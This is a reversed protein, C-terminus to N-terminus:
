ASKIDKLVDDRLHEYKCRGKKCHKLGESKYKEYGDPFVTVVAKHGKAMEKAIFFNAGSSVGVCCGSIKEIQFASEKAQESTVTKIEDIIKNLKGDEGKVLDPIFGVGIGQISHPGPKGGSLVASEAPEVAIIKVAPYAEKLARAVGILTGGTGVAAVFVDITESYGKIQGIIEQGTTKYHCEANLVNAFQNTSFYGPKKLFEDRIACAEASGGKASCLILKAGLRTILEKRERTMNEPMIITVDYGKERGYFSLAVGTNGSTAEVLTMDPKLDGNEESKEIIYKDIRDKISGCPNVCELKAYIGDVEILPTNGVEPM